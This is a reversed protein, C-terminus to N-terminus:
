TRHGVVLEFFREGVMAGPEAHEGRLPKDNRRRDKGVGLHDEARGIGLPLPEEGAMGGAAATERLPPLEGRFRGVFRDKGINGAEERREEAPRSVEEETHSGRRRDRGLQRNRQRLEM